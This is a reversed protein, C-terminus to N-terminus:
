RASQGGGEPTNKSADPNHHKEYMGGAAKAAMGLYPHGAVTAASAAVNVATKAIDDFLDGKEKGYLMSDGIVDAVVASTSTHNTVRVDNQIEEISVPPIHGIDFKGSADDIRGFVESSRKFALFLIVIPTAMAILSGVIAFFPSAVVSFGATYKQAFAPLLYAFAMIPPAFLTTIVVANFANFVNNGLQGLPRVAIGLPYLIWVLLSMIFLGAAEIVIFIGLIGSIGMSIITNIAEAASAIPFLGIVIDIVGNSDGANLLALSGITFGKSLNYFMGYVPFFLWGFVIVLGMSVVARQIKVGHRATPSIVVIFAVASAVLAVLIRALGYTGGLALLFFDSKLVELPPVAVTTLVTVITELFTIYWERLARALDELFSTVPELPNWTKIITPVVGSTVLKSTVALYFLAGM